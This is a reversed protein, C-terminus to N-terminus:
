YRVCHQKGPLSSELVRYEKNLRALFTRSPQAPASGYFAHDVPASPLIEFRKWHTEAGESSGLAALNSHASSGNTPVGENFLAANPMDPTQTRTSLAQPTKLDDPTLVGPPSTAAESSSQLATPDSSSWGDDDVEMPEEEDTSWDDGDVADGRVWEGQENTAWTEADEDSMMSDQESADGWLDELQDLGDHLRTLRELPLVVLSSDLLM